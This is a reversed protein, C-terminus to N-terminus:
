PIPPAAECPIIHAGDFESLVFATCTDLVGIKGDSGATCGINIPSISTGVSFNGTDRSIVDYSSVGVVLNGSIESVLSQGDLPSFEPFGSLFFRAFYGHVPGFSGPGLKVKKLAIVSGAYFGQDVQVCLDKALAVPVLICTLAFAATIRAM